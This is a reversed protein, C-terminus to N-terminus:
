QLRRDPGAVEISECAGALRSAIRAGSMGGWLKRLEGISYNSTVVTALGRATRTDILRTLTEIAWDTPREAGLDDLALLPYTEARELAYRDGGDYGDRIDDLLRKATVLKANLRGRSAGELAMRVACAAAYTKGRGPGGWLYSGKGLSALRYVRRGTECDAKAYEGMLGAKRLRSVRMREIVEALESDHTSTM